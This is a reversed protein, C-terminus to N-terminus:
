CPQSEWRKKSFRRGSNPLFTFPIFIIASAIGDLSAGWFRDLRSALEPSEGSSLQQQEELSAQPAESPNEM